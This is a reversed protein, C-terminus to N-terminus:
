FPDMFAQHLLDRVDEPGALNMAQESLVQVDAFSHNRIAQKVFPIARPNMSLEDVGLGMLLLAALPDGALEGCVGVWRHYQHASKVVLAILRLVSPHLADSFQAMASNTRDAALTYQTLDNTGISFFNVEPALIDAMIAASPVEVMIGIEVQRAYDYRQAELQQQVQAIHARLERVESWSSIMPVMIKLNANVGARLLARLQTHFLEPHAFALRAGRVGLFPNLEAPMALYAAPKDGGIDFTRVVVPRSGFTDLVARYNEIQEEENPESSRDLFLFETRFLGVGEAGNELATQADEPSGINAVIEIPKGDLSTAIRHAELLANEYAAKQSHIQSLSAAITAQDPHLWVVGNRGDLVILNSTPLLELWEAHGVVAPIGMARSLIAVHSTPGGQVTCFGLIFKRDLIVTDSPSLDEALIIVPETLQHDFSPEYGNLIRLVRRCVDRLDATRAALYEDSLSAILHAYHDCGSKWAYEANVRENRITENVRDILDPDQLIMAHASFIAVDDENLSSAARESVVELERIATELASELRSIEEMPDQCPCRDVRLTEQRYFLVPGTTIGPSIGFGQLKQMEPM